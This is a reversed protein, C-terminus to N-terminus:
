AAFESGGGFNLGTMLPVELATFGKQAAQSGLVLAFPIFGLMVPFSAQLGRWSQHQTREPVSAEAVDLNSM